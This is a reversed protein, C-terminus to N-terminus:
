NDDRWSVKRNSFKSFEHPPTFKYAFENFIPSILLNLINITINSTMAIILRTLANFSFLELLLTHPVVILVIAMIRIAIAMIM